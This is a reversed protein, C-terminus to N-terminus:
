TCPQPRFGAIAPKVPQARIVSLLPPAHEAELRPMVEVAPRNAPRQPHALAVEVFGDSGACAALQRDVALAGLVAFAVLAAFAFAQIPKM